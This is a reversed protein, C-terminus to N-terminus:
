RQLCTREAATGRSGLATRLTVGDEVTATLAQVASRSAIVASAGVAIAARSAPWQLRLTERRFRCPREGTSCLGQTSPRQM